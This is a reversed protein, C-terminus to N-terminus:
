SVYKAQELCLKLEPLFMPNVAVAVVLDHSFVIPDESALIVEEQRILGMIQCQKPLSIESVKRGCHQSHSQIWVQVLKAKYYSM